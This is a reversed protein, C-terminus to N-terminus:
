IFFANTDKGKRDWEEKGRALVEAPTAEMVSRPVEFVEKYGKRVALLNDQIVQEGRKGFYYRLPTEVRKFLEEDAIGDDDKFPTVRLFVGLLVVRGVVVALRFFWGARPSPQGGLWDLGEKVGGRAAALAQPSLRARQPRRGRRDHSAPDTM